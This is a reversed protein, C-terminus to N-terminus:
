SQTISLIAGAEWAVRDGDRREEWQGVTADGSQRPKATAFASHKLQPLGSSFLKSGKPSLTKSPTPKPKCGWSAFLAILFLKYVLTELAQKAISEARRSTVKQYRLTTQINEHGM